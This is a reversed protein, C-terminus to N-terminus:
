KPQRVGSPANLGSINECVAASSWTLIISILSLWPAFGPWPPMRGPALTVSAMASARPTFTPLIADAWRTM